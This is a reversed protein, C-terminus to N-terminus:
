WDDQDDEPGYNHDGHNNGVRVIRRRDQAEKIVHVLSQLDFLTDGGSLCIGASRV